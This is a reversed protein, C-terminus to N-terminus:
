IEIMNMLQFASGSCAVAQVCTVCNNFGRDPVINQKIQCLRYCDSVIHFPIQYLKALDELISYLRARKKNNSRLYKAPTWKFWFSSFAFKVLFSKLLSDEQVDIPWLLPIFLNLVKLLIMIIIKIKLGALRKFLFDSFMKSSVTIKLTM